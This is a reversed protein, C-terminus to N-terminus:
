AWHVRGLNLLPATIASVSREHLTAIEMPTLGQEYQDRLDGDEDPTWRQWNRPYHELRYARFTSWFDQDRVPPQEWETKMILQTPWEAIVEGEKDVFATLDMDQVM